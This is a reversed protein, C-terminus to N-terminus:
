RRKWWVWTGAAVVGLPLVIVLLLFVLQMQGATLLVTPPVPIRTSVAPGREEHALWRVASLALDSNSM